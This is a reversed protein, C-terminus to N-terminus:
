GLTILVYMDASANKLDERIDFPAGKALKAKLKLLEVLERAGEYTANLGVTNVYKSTATEGLMRRNARWRDNTKLAPLTGPWAGRHLDIAFDAYEFEHARRTMLDQAEQGDCLLLWPRGFPRMFLQLLPVRLDEAPKYFYSSFRGANKAHALALPLNGLLNKESGPVFPIGPLPNPLAARSLLYLCGILALVVLTATPSLAIDM